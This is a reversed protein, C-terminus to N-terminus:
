TLADLMNLDFPDRVDEWHSAPLITDDITPLNDGPSKPSSGSKPSGKHSGSKPSGVKSKPSEAM